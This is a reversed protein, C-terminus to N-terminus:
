SNFIDLLEPFEGLLAAFEDEALGEARILEAALRREGGNWLKRFRSFHEADVIPAAAPEDVVDFPQADMTPEPLAPAPNAAIDIQVTEEAM